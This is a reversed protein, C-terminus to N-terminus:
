TLSLERISSKEDMASIKSLIFPFTVMIEFGVLEALLVGLAVETGDDLVVEFVVDFVVEFVADFVVEVVVDLVVEV